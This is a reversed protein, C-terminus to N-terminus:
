LHWRILSAPQRCGYACPAPAAAGTALAALLPHSLGAATCPPAGHGRGATAMALPTPPITHAAAVHSSLGRWCKALPAKLSINARCCVCGGQTISTRFRNALSGEKAFLKRGHSAGVFDTPPAAAWGTRRRRRHTPTSLPATTTSASVGVAGPWGQEAPPWYSVLPAAHAAGRGARRLVPLPM